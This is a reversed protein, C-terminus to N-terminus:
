IYWRQCVARRISGIDVARITHLAAASVEPAMYDLTGVRDRMEALDSALGFDGVRLERDGEPTTSFFLNEPKLDRHTIGMGHLAQLVDLLPALIDRVAAEENMQGGKLVLERYLDGGECHEMVLVIQVDDEFWGLLEAVGPVRNCRAHLRVERHVMEVLGKTLKSKIYAKLVLQRGSTKCTASAM